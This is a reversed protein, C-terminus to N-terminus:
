SVLLYFSFTDVSNKQVGLHRLALDGHLYGGKFSPEFARLAILDGVMVPDLVVSDNQM